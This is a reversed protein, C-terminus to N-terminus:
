GFEITQGPTLLFCMSNATKTKIIAHKFILM